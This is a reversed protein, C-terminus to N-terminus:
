HIKELECLFAINCAAHWSHPDRLYACLHRMLADRYGDYYAEQQIKGIDINM